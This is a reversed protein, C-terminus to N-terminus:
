PIIGNRNGESVTRDPRVIASRRRERFIANRRNVTLLANVVAMLRKIGILTTQGDPHWKGGLM